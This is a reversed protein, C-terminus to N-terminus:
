QVTITGANVITGDNELDGTMTITSAASNEFSGGTAVTMSIGSLNAIAFTGAINNTVVGSTGLINLRNAALASGGLTKTAAGSFQLINLSEGSLSSISQPTATGQFALTSAAGADYDRAGTGADISYNGTVGVTANPFNKAGAGGLRLDSYTVAGIAQAGAGAYYFTGADTITGVFTADGGMKVAENNALTVGVGSLDLNGTVYLTDNNGVTLAGSASLTVNGTATKTRAASSGSLTLNGYTTAVVEQNGDRAYDV